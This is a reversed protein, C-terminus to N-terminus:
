TEIVEFARMSNISQPSRKQGRRRTTEENDSNSADGDSGRSRALTLLEQEKFAMETRLRAMEREMDRRADTDSRGNLSVQSTLEM